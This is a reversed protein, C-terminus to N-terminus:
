GVIMDWLFNFIWGLIFFVVVGVILFGLFSFFGDPEVLNWSIIISLVVLAFVVLTAQNRSKSKSQKKLTTFEDYSMNNGKWQSRRIEECKELGSKSLYVVRGFIEYKNTNDIKEGSIPCFGRNILGKSNLLNYTESKQAIHELLDKNNQNKDSFYFDSMVVGSSELEQLIDNRWDFVFNSNYGLNDFKQTEEVFDDELLLNNIYNNQEIEKSVWGDFDLDTGSKLKVM